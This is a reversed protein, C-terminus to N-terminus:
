TQINSLQSYEKYMRPVLRKNSRNQLYKWDTEQSKMKKIINDSNCFNQTKILALKDTKERISENTKQAM